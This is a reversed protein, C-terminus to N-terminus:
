FVSAAGAGGCFNAFVKQLAAPQQNTRVNFMRGSESQKVRSHPVCINGGVIREVSIAAIGEFRRCERVSGCQAWRM